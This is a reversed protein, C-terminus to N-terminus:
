SAIDVFLLLEITEHAASSGFFAGHEELLSMVLRIVKKKSIM